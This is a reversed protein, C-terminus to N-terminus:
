PDSITMSLQVFYHQMRRLFVPDYLENFDPEGVEPEYKLVPKGTLIQIRPVRVKQILSEVDTDTINNNEQELQAAEKQIQEAAAKEM